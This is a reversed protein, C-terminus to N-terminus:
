TIDITISGAAGADILSQRPTMVIKYLDPYTVTSVNLYAPNTNYSPNFGVTITTPGGTYYYTVTTEFSGGVNSTTNSFEFTWTGSSYVGNTYNITWNGVAAWTMSGSGAAMPGSPTATPTPTSTATPAPTPTPTSTPAPTPTPTDTPAPTPTPTDTPAPTPTPTSTPAPTPTPTDTPAPTPTPTSTPAPTPTPTSTPAPTPTPTDTPAPTPTSTPAPTPTATAVPSEYQEAEISKNSVFEWGTKGQGTKKIWLEKENKFTITEEKLTHFWIKNRYHIAFSSKLIQLSELKGNSLLFFNNNDRLFMSGIPASVINEPSSEELQHPVYTM